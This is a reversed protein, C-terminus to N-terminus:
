AKRLCDPIHVFFTTGEDKNKKYWISGNMFSIIKKSISLGMGIGQYERSHGTNLQSFVEFVADTNKEHLGIGKDKISIILGTQHSIKADMEVTSDGGFKLANDLIANIIAQLKDFQIYLNHDLIEESFKIELSANPKNFASKFLDFNSYNRHLFVKMGIKEKEGLDEASQIQSFDLINTLVNLLQYGQRNIVEVIEPIEEENPNEMLIESFGIIGNLPTRIEHSMTNLFNMKTRDSEESKKLAIQLQKKESQLQMEYKDILYSGIAALISMSSLFLTNNLFTAFQPGQMGLSLMNQYFIAHYVYIIVTLSATIIVMWKDTKLIFAAWLIVLVLGMYYDDHGKEHPLANFIMLFIGIQAIFISLVTTLGLYNQFRKYYSLFYPFVLFPGLIAYRFIWAQQYTEPLMFYDLFGYISYLIFGALIGIRFTKPDINIKELIRNISM